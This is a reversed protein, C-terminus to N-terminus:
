VDGAGTGQRAARGERRPLRGRERGGLGQPGERSTTGVMIRTSGRSPRPSSKTFGGREFPYAPVRFRAWSWRTTRAADYCDIVFGGNSIVAHGHKEIFAISARYASEAEEATVFGELCAPVAKAAAYDQSSPRSTRWAIGPSSTSRPSTATRTSAYRVQGRGRRGDIEAELITWPVIRRYNSAEVM